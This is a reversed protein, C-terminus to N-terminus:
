STTFTVASRITEEGDSIIGKVPIKLPELLHKVEQLLATLDEQM